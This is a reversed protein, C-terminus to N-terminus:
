AHRRVPGLMAPLAFLTCFLTWFLGITLLAGMGATGPHPSLALSGFATTTTLASFLVARATSSQLPGSLGSRWNM